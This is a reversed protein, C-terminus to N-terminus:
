SDPSIMVLGVFGGLCRLMLYGLLLYRIVQFTQISLHLLIATVEDAIGEAPGIESEDGHQVIHVVHHVLLVDNRFVIVQLLQLLLDLFQRGDLTPDRFTWLGFRLITEIMRVITSPFRRSTLPIFNLM